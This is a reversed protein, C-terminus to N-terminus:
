QLGFVVIKASAPAVPFIPSRTGAVLRDLSEVDGSILRSKPTRGYGAAGLMTMTDAFIKCNEPRPELSTLTCDRDLFFTAHDGVGAGLELVSKGHLDLGLSALHELRRSNHRQYQPNKFGKFAAILADQSVAPKIPGSM